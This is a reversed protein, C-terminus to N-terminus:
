SADGDMDEAPLTVTFTSGEGLKSSVSISGGHAAVLERVVALGLGSGGYRREATADVQVFKEFIHPLLKEPIGAGNDAVVIDVFGDDPSLSAGIFVRGGSDTYKIANSTLNEVIRRMKEPDADIVPVNNDVRVDISVGKRDAMPKASTRIIAMLDRLDLSEKHVVLKGADIKAAELINNIMQLLLQGNEYIERVALTEHEDAGRAAEQWMETYALIATLPTRLEHSMIALFDSKYNSEEKLLRNAEELQLRQEELITNAEHLQATRDKVQEELSEYVGRLQEAMANLSDSLEVVERAAGRREVQRGFDGVDMRKAAAALRSLPRTVLSSLSIYLIIMLGATVILTYGNQQYLTSRVNMLNLDIPMIIDIAGAVSGIAIGEKPYGTVDIEGAPGGHCSACAEQMMLPAVYRFVDEDQYTTIEFYEDKGNRFAEFAKQEFEDAAFWPNRPTESVHRIVYGTKAEFLKSISQGALACYIGKFNYMGDSDTDIRRQNFSVFDWSSEMQAAIIRSKELMESESRLTLMSSSWLTNAILTVATFGILLLM